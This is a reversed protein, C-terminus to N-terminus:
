KRASRPSITDVFRYNWLNFEYKLSYMIRYLLYSNKAGSGSPLGEPPVPTNPRLVTKWVCILLESRSIQHARLTETGTM